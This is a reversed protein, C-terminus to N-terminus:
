SGFIAWFIASRVSIGHVGSFLAYEATQTYLIANLDNLQKIINKLDGIDKSIISRSTTDTVTLTTNLDNFVQRHQKLETLKQKIHESCETPLHM